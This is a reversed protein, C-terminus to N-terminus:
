REVAKKVREFEKEFYVRWCDAYQDRCEGECDRPRFDHMDYPCTGMAKAYAACVLQLLDDRM